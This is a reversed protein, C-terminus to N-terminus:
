TLYYFQYTLYKCHSIDQHINSHDQFHKFRTHCCHFYHYGNITSHDQLTHNSTSDTTSQHHDLLSHHHDQFSSDTIAKATTHYHEQFPQNEAAISHQHDPFLQKDAKHQCHLYYPYKGQGNPTHICKFQNSKSTHVPKRPTQPKQLDQLPSKLKKTVQHQLSTHLMYSVTRSTNKIRFYQYTHHNQM